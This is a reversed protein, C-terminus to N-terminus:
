YKLSSKLRRRLGWLGGWIMMLINLKPLTMNIKQHFRHWFIFIISFHQFFQLWIFWIKLCKRVAGDFWKWSESMWRKSWSMKSFEQNRELFIFQSGWVFSACQQPPLPKAVTECGMLIFPRFFAGSACQLISSCPDQIQLIGLWAREHLRATM